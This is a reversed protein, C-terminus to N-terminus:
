ERVLYLDHLYPASAIGLSRGPASPLADTSAPSSQESQCDIMGAFSMSIMVALTVILELHLPKTMKKM